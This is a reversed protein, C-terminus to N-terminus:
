PLRLDGNSVQVKGRHIRSCSIKNCVALFESCEALRNDVCAGWSSTTLFATKKCVTCGVCAPRPKSASMELICRWRGPHRVCRSACGALTPYMTQTPAAFFHTTTPPRNCLQYTVHSFYFPVPAFSTSLLEPSPSSTRRRGAM